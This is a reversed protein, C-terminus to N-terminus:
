YPARSLKAHRKSALYTLHRDVMKYLETNHSYLQPYSVDVSYYDGEEDTGSSQTLKISAVATKLDAIYQSVEKKYSDADMKNYSVFGFEERGPDMYSGSDENIQSAKEIVETMKKATKVKQSENREYGTYVKGDSNIFHMAKGHTVYFDVARTFPINDDFRSRLDTVWM